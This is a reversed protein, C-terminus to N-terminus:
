SDYCFFLIAAMVVSGFFESFNSSREYSFRVGKILYLVLLCLPINLLFLFRWSSFYLFTSAILPSVAQAVATSLVIIASAFGYKEKPLARQIFIYILPFSLGYGVGQVLRCLVLMLFSYSCAAFTVALVFISLGLYFQKKVPVIDSLAGGLLAFSAATVIYATNIWQSTYVNSSYHKAISPISLTIAVFDVNGLFMLIAVAILLARVGNSKIM